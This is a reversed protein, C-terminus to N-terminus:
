EEYEPFGPALLFACDEHCKGCFPVLDRFKRNAEKIDDGDAGAAIALAVTQAEQNYSVYQDKHEPPYLLIVENLAKQIKKADQAVEDLSANNLAVMIRDTSLKIERM